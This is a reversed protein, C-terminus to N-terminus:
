SGKEKIEEKVYLRKNLKVHCNRCLLDCKKIEEFLTELSLGNTLGLAIHFSKDEPNRHHFDLCRPDKEPCKSCGRNEKYEWLAKRIAIKRNRKLELLHDKNEMRYIRMYPTHRENVRDKNQQHWLRSNARAKEINSDRWRKYNARLREKNKLRYQKNYETKQEPNKYGM